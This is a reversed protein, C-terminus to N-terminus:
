ERYIDLIECMEAESQEIGLRECLYEIQGCLGENNVAAAEDAKLDHILEELAEDDDPVGAQRCDLELATSRYSDPREHLDSAIVRHTQLERVGIVAKVIAPLATQRQAQDLVTQDTAELDVTLRLRQM